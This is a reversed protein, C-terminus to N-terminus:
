RFVSSSWIRPLGTHVSSLLDAMTSPGVLDPLDLEITTGDINVVGPGTSEVDVFSSM